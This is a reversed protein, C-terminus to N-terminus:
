SYLGFCFTAVKFFTIQLPVKRCTNILTLLNSISDTMNTNKVGAKHVTAEPRFMSSGTPISVLSLSDFVPAVGTLLRPDVDGPEIDDAVPEQLHPHGAGGGTGEKAYRTMERVRAEDGKSKEKSLKRKYFNQIQVKSWAM